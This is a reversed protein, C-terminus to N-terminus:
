AADSEPASTDRDERGEDEGERNWQQTGSCRSM